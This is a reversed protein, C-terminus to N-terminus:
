PKRRLMFSCQAHTCSRGQLVPPKGDRSAVGASPFSLQLVFVEAERGEPLSGSTSEVHNRQRTLGPAWLLLRHSLVDERDVEGPERGGAERPESGM